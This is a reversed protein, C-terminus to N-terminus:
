RYVTRLAYFQSASYGQGAYVRIVYRGPPLVGTSIHEDRNGPEGSYGLQGMGTSDYLYLSYNHGEPIQTLWVEVTHASSMEFWYYDDKDGPGYILAYIAVGSQLPGWGPPSDNPEYPDGPVPTPTLTPTPTPTPESTPGFHNLIVPVRMTLPRTPTATATPTPTITFMPTPTPTLRVTPTSTPTTTLTGTLLPTPTATPTATPTVVTTDYTVLLRAAGAPLYDYAQWDIYYRSSSTYDVLIALDNGPRWESQGVIEAVVSSIDPSEATSSVNSEIRWPVKAATRPRLHAPLNAPNFDESQPRLDGAISVEIPTGSQYGWPELVLKASTIRAGRPVRVNRFLFGSVYPVTGNSSAGMRVFRSSYILESTDVRVYTDDMCHAVGVNVTGSPAPTAPNTPLPTPTFVCGPTPTPTSPTRTPTPTPTAPRTPTPTSTLTPTATPTPAPTRTPTPTSTPTPPPTATPSPTYTPTPTATASSVVDLTIDDITMGINTISSDSKLVFAIWVQSQGVRSALDLTYAYFGNGASGNTWDGCWGPGSFNVGDSSSGAFLYDYPCGTGGETRGYFYFNLTASAAQSLDFPGYIAWTYTYNPYYSGCSLASGQAGGGVSWGGYSGSRKWCTRKGWLYEGGDQSSNDELTWGSAPWAGEFDQSMIVAAPELARDRAVPFTLELRDVYFGGGEPVEGKPPWDSASGVMSSVFAQAALLMGVLGLVLMLNLLYLRKM